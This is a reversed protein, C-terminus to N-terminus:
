RTSPKAALIGQARPFPDDEVAKRLAPDDSKGIISPMRVGSAPKASKGTSSCGCLTGLLVATIAMVRAVGREM